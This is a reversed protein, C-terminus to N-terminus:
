LVRHTKNLYAILERGIATEDTPLPTLRPVVAHSPEGDQSCAYFIWGAAGDNQWCYLQRGDKYYVRCNGNDESDFKIM